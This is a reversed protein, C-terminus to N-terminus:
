WPMFGGFEHFIVGERSLQKVGRQLSTDEPLNEADVQTVDQVSLKFVYEFIDKGSSALPFRHYGNGFARINSDEKLM